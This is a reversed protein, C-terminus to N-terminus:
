LPEAFNKDTSSHLTGPTLRKREHNLDNSDLIWKRSAAQWNKMAAKGGIKWGNSEYYNFFKEAEVRGAGEQEFYCIVEEVSAPIAAPAKRDYRMEERYVFHMADNDAHAIANVENFHKYHKLINISRSVPQAGATNTTTDSGAGAATDISTDSAIDVAIDFRYLMVQSGRQRDYSPEYLIYDWDSLERMCRHYTNISGIKSYAMIEARSISFPNQFRNLNWFHFLASYLSFHFCTVRKDNAQIELWKKYHKIYNMTVTPTDAFLRNAV